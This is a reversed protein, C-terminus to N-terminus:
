KKGIINKTYNDKKFYPLIFFAPFRKLLGGAWKITNLNVTLM